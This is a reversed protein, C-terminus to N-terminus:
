RVGRKGDRSAAGGDTRAPNHLSMSHFCFQFWDSSHNTTKVVETSYM